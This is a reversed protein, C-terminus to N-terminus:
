QIGYRERAPADLQWVKGFVQERNVLRLIEQVDVPFVVFDGWYSNRVLGLRCVLLYKRDPSIRVRYETPSFDESFVENRIDEWIAQIEAYGPLALLEPADLAYLPDQPHSIPAHAANLEQFRAQPWPDEAMGWFNNPKPLEYLLEGQVSFVSIAKEGGPAVVKDSASSFFPPFQDPSSANEQFAWYSKGSLNWKKVTRDLSISLGYPTPNEVYSMDLICGTHGRWQQLANGDFDWLWLTHNSSITALKNNDRFIRIGQVGSPDSMMVRVDHLEQNVIKLLGNTYGVLFHM